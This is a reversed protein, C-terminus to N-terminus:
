GFRTHLFRSGGQGNAQRERSLEVKLKDRWKILEPLDLKVFKREKIQYEKVNGDSLAKIAKNAAALLQELESRGDYNGTITSLNVKVEVSGTEITTRQDDGDVLYAQYFYEGPPLTVTQASSLLVVWRSGDGVGAVDLSAQGRLSLFITDGSNGSQSNFDFTVRDGAVFSQGSVM